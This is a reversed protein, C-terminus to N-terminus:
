ECKEQLGKFVDAIKQGETTNLDILELGEIVEDYGPGLRQELTDARAILADIANADQNDLAQQMQDHIGGLACYARLKSKDASIAEAFQQVDALTPKPVREAPEDHAFPAVVTISLIAFATLLRSTCQYM